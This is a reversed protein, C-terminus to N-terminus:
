ETPGSCTKTMTEGRGSDDKVIRKRMGQIFIFYLSSHMISYFIIIIGPLRLIKISRVSFLYM